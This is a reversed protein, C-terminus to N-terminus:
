PRTKYRRLFWDFSLTLLPAELTLVGIFLKPTGDGSRRIEWIVVTKDGMRGDSWCLQLLIVTYWVIFSFLITLIRTLENLSVFNTLQVHVCSNQSLNASFLVFTCMVIKFSLRPIQYDTFKLFNFLYIFEDLNYHRKRVTVNEWNERFDQPLLVTIQFSGVIGIPTTVLVKKKRCGKHFCSHVYEGFISESYLSHSVPKIKQTTITKRWYM